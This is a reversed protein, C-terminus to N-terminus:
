RRREVIEDARAGAANATQVARQELERALKWLAMIRDFTPAAAIQQDFATLATYVAHAAHEAPDISPDVSDLSASVLRNMAAQQNIVDEALGFGDPLSVSFDPVDIDEIPKVEYRDEDPPDIAYRSM